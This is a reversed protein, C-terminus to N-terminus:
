NLKKKNELLDYNEFFFFFLGLQACLPLSNFAIRFTAFEQYLMILKKSTSNTVVVTSSKVEIFFKYM